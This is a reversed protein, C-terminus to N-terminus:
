FVNDGSGSEETAQGYVDRLDSGFVAGFNRAFTEGLFGIKGLVGVGSLTLALGAFRDALRAAIGVALRFGTAHGVSQAIFFVTAALCVAFSVALHFVTSTRKTQGILQGVFWGHFRAGIIVLKDSLDVKRLQVLLEVL